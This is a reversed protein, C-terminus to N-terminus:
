IPWRHALDAARQGNKKRIDELANELCGPSCATVGGQHRWGIANLDPLCFQADGSYGRILELETNRGADCGPGDCKLICSLLIPM